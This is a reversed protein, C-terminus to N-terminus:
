ERKEKKCLGVIWKYWGSPNLYTSMADILEDLWPRSGDPDIYSDSVLPKDPYLSVREKDSAGASTTTSTSDTGFIKSYKSRLKEHQARVAPEVAKM